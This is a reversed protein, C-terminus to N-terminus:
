RADSRDFEVIMRLRALLRRDVPRFRTRFFGRVPLEGAIYRVEWDPGPKLRFSLAVDNAGPHNPDYVNITVSAASEDLDYGYALVQHNRGLELPNFSHVRVLGIPSLVGRDLDRKIRPWERGVTRAAVGRLGGRGDHAPLVMWAMYRAPGAPLDFSHFLRRVVYRFLPSGGPPPETAAPPDIGAEFLDRAAFVMGGCLGNAANGLGLRRGGARIALVPGPRFSNAFGFGSASPAFGRVRVSKM